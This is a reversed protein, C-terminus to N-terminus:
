DIGAGGLVIADRIVLACSAHARGIRGFDIRPQAIDFRFEVGAIEEVARLIDRRALTNKVRTSGSAPRGQRARCRLEPKGSTAAISIISGGAAGPTGTPGSNANFIAYYHRRRLADSCRIDIRTERWWTVRYWYSRGTESPGCTM